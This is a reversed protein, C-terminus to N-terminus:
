QARVSAKLANYQMAERLVDAQGGLVEVLKYAFPLTTGPGRSTIMNGCVAVGDELKTNDDIYTADTFLSQIAEGPYSTLTRGAAVGAKALVQPAACIAAVFKDEAAAFKQVWAIVAETDRLTDAGPLGGPLVVMDYADPVVNALLKDALVRIGHSGHVVEGEVGVADCVFGARRLVDVVALGEVEEFGNALLVAIKKQM